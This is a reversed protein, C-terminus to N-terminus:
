KKLGFMDLWQDTESDTIGDHKARPEPSPKRKRQLQSIVSLWFQDSKVAIAKRKAAARRLRRDSSVVILRKPASDAAIKDEIVSDADSDPGTFLVELNDLKYFETKDRPGIGDFVICGQARVRKLYQSLMRCMLIDCNSQFDEDIKEVTRLLNYGDIIVAM